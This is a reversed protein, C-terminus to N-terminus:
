FFFPIVFVDYGEGKNIVAFEEFKGGEGLYDEFSMSYSFSIYMVFICM